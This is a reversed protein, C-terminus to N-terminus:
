PEDEEEGRIREWAARLEAVAEECDVGLMVAATAYRTADERLARKSEAKRVPPPSEAVYTGDGRRVEFIGADTLRGYAKAVTAPNVRLEKATERVSAVATGPSLAGSAVLRRMGEEIQSWIPKPDAPDVHLKRSVVM